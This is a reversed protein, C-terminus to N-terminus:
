RTRPLAGRDSPSPFQSTEMRGRHRGGFEDEVWWAAAEPQVPKRLRSGDILGSVM